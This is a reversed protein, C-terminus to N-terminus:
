HDLQSAPEVKFIGGQIIKECRLDIRRYLRERPMTLFLCKCQFPFKELDVEMKFSSVARVIDCLSPLVIYKCYCLVRHQM